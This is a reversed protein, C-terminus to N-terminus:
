NVSHKKGLEALAAIRSLARRYKKRYGSKLLGVSFLNAVSEGSYLIPVDLDYLRDIFVVWRLGIAQDSITSIGQIAYFDFNSVLKQYKSPHLTSLFSTIEEFSNFGVRTEDGNLGSLVSILDGQVPATVSGLNRHRYDDGDIRLSVFHNALGQIERAFDESAFREEGLRDPLTNSTAALFVGNEVLRMLLTSMLVTDGPDDLEFEDICVLKFQSLADVTQAFGLVGVLNTYEVFTGFVKEGDVAHWLSALLHTKGVGFGGDLYIGPKRVPAKRGWFKKPANIYKAFDLLETVALSQTPQNLDPIYNEFRVDLFHPPPVLGAVLERPSLEITLSRIDITEQV